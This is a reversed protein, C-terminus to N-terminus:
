KIEREITGKGKFTAFPQNFVNYFDLEYEFDGAHGATDEPQLPITMNQDVVIIKGESRKKKIFPKEIVKSKVKLIIEPAETLPFSTDFNVELFDALNGEQLPPINVTAPKYTM